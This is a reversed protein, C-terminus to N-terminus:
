KTSNLSVLYSQIPVAEYKATNLQAVVRPNFTEFLVEGTSKVRIVWSATTMKTDGLNIIPTVGM